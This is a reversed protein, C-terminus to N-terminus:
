QGTLDVRPGHSKLRMSEAGAGEDSEAETRRLVIGVHPCYATLTRKSFNVGAKEEVTELCGDFRGAPVEVSRDLASITVTGFDGAFTAGVRLPVKLLWGGTVHQVGSADLTVRSVHGAVALEARDSGPRRVEMVLLGREGSAEDLTEYAFVTNDTLPLFREIPTSSTQTQPAAPAAQPPAACASLGSWAAFLARRLVDGM